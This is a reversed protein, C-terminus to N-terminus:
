KDNGGLLQSLDIDEFKMNKFDIQDLNAMLLNDSDSVEDTKEEFNDMKDACYDLLDAIDDMQNTLLSSVPKTKIPECFVTQSRRETDAGAAPVCPIFFSFNSGEGEESSVTVEGGMLSVLNKVIMLGLGTGGFKRTISGDVQSFANFLKKVDAPKMGIGTDIISFVLVPKGLKRQQGVKLTISGELTFKVANTILNHLVQRLRMSDCWVYEPLGNAVELNFKLGKENAVKEHVNVVRTVHELLDIRLVDLEMKGSELKSYDLIDNIIRLLDESCQKATALNERQRESLDSQLTLNIMGMMGNIPTRIEHSMNQLFQSKAKSAEEAVMRARELEQERRKRESIDLMSLVISKKGHDWVQSIFVRIWVASAGEFKASRRMLVTFQGSFRDDAIAAEINGRVPCVQCGVGHGCGALESCSCGFADGFQKGLAEARTCDLIAQAVENLESISGYCDLLCVGVGAAGFMVELSRRESELQMELRRQETIDRMELQCSHVENDAALLPTATVELYCQEGGVKLVGADAPLVVQRRTQIAEAVPDPLVSQTGLRRFVCVDTLQNEQLRETDLMHHAAKNAYVIVGNSDTFIVGDAINDVIGRLSILFNEPLYL